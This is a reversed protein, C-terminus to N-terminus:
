EEAKELDLKCMQFNEIWTSSFSLLLNQTSFHAYNYPLKFLRQCQREKAQFSFQGKEIRHGSSLKGFKTIYQTHYKLPM